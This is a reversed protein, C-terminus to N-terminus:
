LFIQRVIHDWLVFITSPWVQVGSRAPRVCPTVNQRSEWFIWFILKLVTLFRWVCSERTVKNGKCNILFSTPLINNSIKKKLEVLLQQPTRYNSLVFFHWQRLTPRPGFHDVEEVGLGAGVHLLIYYLVELVWSATSVSLELLGNGGCGGGGCCQTLSPLTRMRWFNDHCARELYTM